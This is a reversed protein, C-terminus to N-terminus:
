SPPQERTGAMAMWSCAIVFGCQVYLYRDAIQNEVMGLLGWTIASAGAMAAIARIELPLGKFREIRRSLRFYGVLYAVFACFGVLGTSALLQLYINHADRSHALGTGVVPNHFFQEIAETRLGARERDSEGVDQVTTAGSGTLRDLAVLATDRFAIGGVILAIAGAFALWKLTVGRLERPMLFPTIGIALAAGGIGGRSGSSMIAMLTACLAGTYILQKTKTKATALRGVVLPITLVMVVALHNSHTTLGTSRGASAIHTIREGITTHITFDSIAVAANVIASLIWLDVLLVVCRLHGGIVGVTFPVLVMAVVLRVLGVLSAPLDGFALLAVLGVLTFALAPIIVWFPLLVRWRDRRLVISPTACGTAMLLFLDSIAFSGGLRVGNWTMAFMSVGLAGIALRDFITLTSRAPLARVDSRLFAFAGILAVPAVLLRNPQVDGAVAAGVALGVFVASVVTLIMATVALPIAEFPSRGRNIAASDASM